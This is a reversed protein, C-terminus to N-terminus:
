ERLSSRHSGPGTYLTHNEAIDGAQAHNHETVALFDVGSNDRAHEYADEPTGSGDSLATHSHLNGFFVSLHPQATPQTPWLSGYAALADTLLTVAARFNMTSEKVQPSVAAHKSEGEDVYRPLQRFRV